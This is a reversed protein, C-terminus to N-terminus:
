GRWCCFWLFLWWLLPWFVVVAAVVVTSSEHLIQQDLALPIIGPAASMWIELKGGNSIQQLSITPKSTDLEKGNLSLRQIYKNEEAQNRVEISFKGGKVSLEASDIFPRGLVFNGSCPDVPYFGLLSLAVWASMAGMDDNGPLGGAKDSFFEKVLGDILEQSKWPQHALSYLYPTHMTVENGLSLGHHNGSLDVQGKQIPAENFFYDLHRVFEKEGGHMQILKDVDFEAGFSYHLPSGETYESRQTNKDQIKRFRMHEGAGHAAVPAFFGQAVDWFKFVSDARRKFHAKDESRGLDNALRSACSDAGAQELAQSVSGANFFGELEISPRNDVDAIRSTKIAALASAKDVVDERAMTGLIISGADGEMMDTPSGILEFRPLYGWADVFSMLSLGFDQSVEPQILNMLPHLARYTDWLSFTTYMHHGGDMHRIPMFEDIQNLDFLEGMMGMAHEKRQLRYSGDEESLLTPALMSHYLASYFIRKRSEPQITVQVKELASQWLQAATKAVQDLSRGELERNLSEQAYKLSTRSMGVRVTVTKAKPFNLRVRGENLGSASRKADAADVEFQIDFKLAFCLYQEANGMGSNVSYSCGELRDHGVTKMDSSELVYGWFSGPPEKLDVEIGPNQMGESFNFRHIAGRPTASSEVLCLPQGDNISIHGKFYGPQGKASSTEISIPSQPFDNSVPLLRLEGLEGSGAGSLSSHAMGYFSLYGSNSDVNFGGQTDWVDIGGGHAWPTAVTMGWPTAAGPFTHGHGGTGVFVDADDRVGRLRGKGSQHQLGGAALLSWSDNHTKSPGPAKPLAVTQWSIDVLDVLSSARVQIGGVICCIAAVGLMTLSAM